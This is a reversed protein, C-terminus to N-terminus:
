RRMVLLLGKCDSMSAVAIRENNAGIVFPINFALGGGAKIVARYVQNSSLANMEWEQKM